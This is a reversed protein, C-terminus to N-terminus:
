EDRLVTTIRAGIIKLAPITTALLWAERIFSGTQADAHRPPLVIPTVLSPFAIGMRPSFFSCAGYSLSFAAGYVM